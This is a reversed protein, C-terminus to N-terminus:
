FYEEDCGYVILPLFLFFTVTFNHSADFITVCTRQERKSAAVCTMTFPIDWRGQNKRPEECLRNSVKSCATCREYSKQFDPAVKGLKEAANFVGVFSPV